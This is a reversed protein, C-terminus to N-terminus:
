PNVGTDPRVIAIAMLSADDLKLVFGSEYRAPVVPVWGPENFGTGAVYITGMVFPSIAYSQVYTDLTDFMTIGAAAASDFAMAGKGFVAATGSVWLGYVMGSSGAAACKSATTSGVVRCVKGGVYQIPIPGRGDPDLPVRAAASVAVASAGVLLAAVAVVAVFKQGMKNLKDIM